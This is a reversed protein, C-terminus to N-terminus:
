IKVHVNFFPMYKPKFFQPMNTSLSVLAETHDKGMFVLGHGQTLRSGDTFWILVNDPFLPDKNKWYEQDIIVVFNKTHRHVPIIYDLQMDLLPDGVNKWINLMGSVTKPASPQKLVHLRYLAMKAKAIILLDLPTLDILVEM